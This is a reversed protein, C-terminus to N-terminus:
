PTGGLTALMMLTAWQARKLEDFQWHRSTCLELFRTRSDLLESSGENAGEGEAPRGAAASQSGSAGETARPKTATTPARPVGGTPVAAANLTAVLFKQRHSKVEKRVVDAIEISKRKALPPPAPHQPAPHQPASHQSASARTSTPAHKAQILEMLRAPFFDGDFLPFERVSTMEETHEYLSDVQSAVGLEVARKLMGEYWSRLKSTSMPRKHARPHAPKCHFIYEVNSMPPAVWLHAHTYGREAASRLYGTLIAHYAPTRSGAPESQLYPVADLYSIYVRNTNPPACEPGYEQVYMAFLCVDRGGVCQFALLCRSDYPFTVAQGDGGASSGALEAPASFSLPKSSVLRVVLPEPLSVGSTALETAVHSEIVESIHCRPLEAARRNVLASLRPGLLSPQAPSQRSCDPCAFPERELRWRSPLQEPAPYMACLFHYWRSCLGCQVYQELDREEKPTWTLETFSDPNLDAADVGGVRLLEERANELDGFCGKCLTVEAARAGYPPARHCRAGDKIFKECASCFLKPEAMLLDVCKCSSCCVTRESHPVGLIPKGGGCVACESGHGAGNGGGNGGDGGDGGRDCAGCVCELTVDVSSDPRVNSIVGVLSRSADAAAAAEAADAVCASKSLVVHMGASVPEPEEGVERGRQQEKQRRDLPVLNSTGSVVRLLEMRAVADSFEGKAGTARGSRWNGYGARYDTPLLHSFDPMAAVAQRWSPHINEASPSPLPPAASSSTAVHTADPAEGVAGAASGLRYSRYSARYAEMESSANFLAPPLDSKLLAPADTADVVSADVVVSADIAPPAPVAGAGAASPEDVAASSSAARKQKKPRQSAQSPNRPQRPPPAATPPQSRRQQRAIEEDILQPLAELEDDGAKVLWAPWEEASERPPAAGASSGASAGVSAGAAATASARRGGQMAMPAPVPPTPAAAMMAIPPAPPAISVASPMPVISVVPVTSAMAQAANMPVASAMPLVSSKRTTQILRRRYGEKTRQMGMWRKCTPCNSRDCSRVHVELQQLMGKLNTVDQNCIPNGCSGPSECLLAHILLKAGSQVDSFRVNDMTEM